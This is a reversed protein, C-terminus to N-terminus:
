SAPQPHIESGVHRSRPTPRKSTRSARWLRRTTRAITTALEALVRQRPRRDSTSLAGCGTCTRHMRRTSLAHGDRRSRQRWRIGSCRTPYPGRRASETHFPHRPVRAEHSNGWATFTASFSRRWPEVAANFPMQSDNSVTKLSAHSGVPRSRSPPYRTLLFSACASSHTQLIRLSPKSPCGKPTNDVCRRSLRRM